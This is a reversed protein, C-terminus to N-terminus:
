VFDSGDDVTDEDNMSLQKVSEEMRIISKRVTINIGQSFTGGARTELVQLRHTGELELSKTNANNPGVLKTIEEQTKRSLGLLNNCYRLLRDSDAIMDSRLYGKESGERSVQAATVVPIDLSGALDKLTATIYGLAQHEKVNNKLMTSDTLKIYDFILVGINKQHKYKKALRIVSEVSVGPLYKHYFNKNDRIKYSAEMVADLHRKENVFSGNSIYRERVGSMNSLLRSMQEETKMETDIYLVPINSDFAINKAWNLLVSSNHVLIDNAVFNPDGNLIQIDYVDDMGAYSVSVIKDWFINKSSSDVIDPRNLYKGVKYLVDNNVGRGKYFRFNIAKSIELMKKHGYEKELLILFDKSPNGFVDGDKMNSTKEIYTDIEKKRGICGIENIFIDIDRKKYFEVLYNYRTTKRVGNYTYAGMRRRKKAVIGFRLLLHQVADAFEESSTSYGVDGECVWGDGSFLRNLFLAILEKKLTFIIDPIKKEYSYKSYDVGFENLLLKLPNKVGNGSIIQLYESFCFIENDIEMLKKLNILSPCCRGKSWLCVSAKSVNLKSTIDYISCKNKLAWKNLKEQINIKEKIIEKYGFGNSINVCNKGYSSDFGLSHCSNNIDNIIDVNTASIVSGSRGGEALWYALLKIKNEDYTKNGFFPLNAPIAIRAGESIYGSDISQWGKPTFFPHNDTVKISRGTATTITYTPKNGSYIPGFFKREIFKGDTFSAVKGVLDKIPVLKGTITDMILTSGSVCKGVKARAALITLSGPTLGNIRSDLMKYGTKIGKIGAPSDMLEQIYPGVAMSVDVAEELRSSYALVESIEDEAAKILQGSNKVNSGHVNTIVQEKLAELRDYLRKKSSSELVSNVYKDLNEYLVRTSFLADIYEYGGCKELIDMSTIKNVVSTIDFTCMGQGTLLQELCIYIYRNHPTLFDEPKIVGYVDNISNPNTLLTALIARENGPDEFALGLDPTNIDLVM